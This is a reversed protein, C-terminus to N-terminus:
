DPAAAQFPALENCAMEIRRILSYPGLDCAWRRANFVQPVLCVDALTPVDGHCFRGTAPSEALLRELSAFGEAIWRGYWRHLAADDLGFDALLADQVRQNNM